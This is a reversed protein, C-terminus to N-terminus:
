DSELKSHSILLINGSGTSHLARMFTCDICCAKGRITQWQDRFQSGSSIQVNMKGIATWLCSNGAISAKSPTFLSLRREPRHSIATASNKMVQETNLISTKIITRYYQTPINICISISLCFPTFRNTFHGM